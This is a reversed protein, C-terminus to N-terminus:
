SKNKLQQLLLQMEFYIRARQIKGEELDYVVCFPVRVQKGTAPISEYEGTHKGVFDAELIAHDESFILNKPEAKAQFAIQYLDQLMATVAAPGTRTKGDFMTTFGADEVLYSEKNVANLFGQIVQKVDEVSM